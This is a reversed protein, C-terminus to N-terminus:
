EDRRRCLLYEYVLYIRKMFCGIAEYCTGTVLVARENVPMFSAALILFHGDKTLVEHVFRLLRNGQRQKGTDPRNYRWVNMGQDKTVIRVFIGAFFFCIISIGLILEPHEHRSHKPYGKLFFRICFSQFFQQLLADSKPVDDRGALACACQVSDQLFVSWVPKSEQFLM